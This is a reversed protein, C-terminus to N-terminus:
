VCGARISPLRSASFVFSSSAPLGGIFYVVSHCGRCRHESPPWREPPTERKRGEERCKCFSITTTTSKERFEGFPMHAQFVRFAEPCFAHATKSTTTYHARPLSLCPVRKHLYRNTGSHASRGCSIARSAASPRGVVILFGPVLPHM